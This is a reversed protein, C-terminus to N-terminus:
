VIQPTIINWEEQITPYGQKDFNGSEFLKVQTMIYLFAHLDEM